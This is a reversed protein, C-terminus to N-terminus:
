IIIRVRENKERDNTRIRNLISSMGDYDHKVLSPNFFYVNGSIYFQKDLYHDITSDMQECTKLLKNATSKKIMYAYLGWNGSHKSSKNKFLLHKSYKKGYMSNTGLLCMDWDNPLEKTYTELRKYFNKPVIIDDEMIFFIDDDNADNMNAITEWITIHSMSCGMQGRKLTKKANETFYKNCKNSNLDLDKGLIASFREFQIGERKLEPELTKMRHIDKDLNIVFSYKFLNPKSMSFDEQSQPLKILLVFIILLLVIIIIM